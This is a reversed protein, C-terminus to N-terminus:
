SNRVDRDSHSGTYLRAIGNMAALADELAEAQMQGLVIDAADSEIGQRTLLATTDADKAAAIAGALEALDHLHNIAHLIHERSAQPFGALLEPLEPDDGHAPHTATGAALMHVPDGDDDTDWYAQLRVEQGTIVELAAARVNLGPGKLSEEVVVSGLLGLRCLRTFEELQAHWSSGTLHLGQVDVGGPLLVDLALPEGGDRANAVLIGLAGCVDERFTDMLERYLEFAHLYIPKLRELAIRVQERPVSPGWPVLLEDGFAAPMPQEVGGVDLMFIHEGEQSHEAAPKIWAKLEVDGAVTPLVARTTFVALGEVPETDFTIATFDGDAALLHLVLESDDPVEPFDVDSDGDDFGDQVAEDLHELNRAAAAGTLGTHTAEGAVLLQLLIHVGRILEDVNVAEAFSLGLGPAEPDVQQNSSWVKEDNESVVRLWLGFPGGGDGHHGRWLTISSDGAGLPGATPEGIVALVDPADPGGDPLTVFEIEAFDTQAACLARIPEYLPDGYPLAEGSETM